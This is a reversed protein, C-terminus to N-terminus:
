GRGKAENGSYSICLNCTAEQDDTEMDIDGFKNKKKSIFEEM